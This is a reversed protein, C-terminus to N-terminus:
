IRLTFTKLVTDQLPTTASDLHKTVDNCGADNSPNRTVLPISTVTVIKTDTVCSSGDNHAQLTTVDEEADKLSITCYRKFADVFQEKKFGRFPKIDKCKRKRTTNSGIGFDTLLKIVQRQRIPLGRNYTSWPAEPEDCLAQVLDATKIRDIDKNELISSIDQLLEVGVSLPASQEKSNTLAVAAETAKKLWEVGALMAIALLPEWNDAQRDPLSEPMSPRIQAYTDLNDVKLRALKQTLIALEGGDAHRLRAVKEHPLKRRLEVEVARDHLTDRTHGIFAIAKPGFVYFSKPEHDDGVCRWIYPAHRSHGSNIIGHM